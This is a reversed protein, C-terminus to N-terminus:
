MASVHVVCEFPSVCNKFSDIAFAPQQKRASLGMCNTLTHPWCGVRATPFNRLIDVPPLTPVHTPDVVLGSEAQVSGSTIECRRAM